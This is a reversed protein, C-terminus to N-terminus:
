RAHRRQLDRPRLVAHQGPRAAKGTRADLAVAAGRRDGLADFAAKQAKPDITTVVNGSAGGSKVGATLVDDYVAELGNRGYMM